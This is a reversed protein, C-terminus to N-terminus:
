SALDDIFQFLGGASSRPNTATPDFRSDEIHVITLVTIPDLNEVIAGAILMNLITQHPGPKAQIQGTGPPIPAPGPGPQPGPPSIPVPSIRGAIDTLTDAAQSLGVAQQRQVSDLLRAAVTNMDLEIQENIAFQVNNLIVRLREAEAQAAAAQATGAGAADREAVLQRLAQALSDRLDALEMDPM